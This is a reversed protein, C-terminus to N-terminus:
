ASHAFVASAENSLPPTEAEGLEAALGAVGVGYPPNEFLIEPKSFAILDADSIPLFSLAPAGVSHLRAASCVGGSRM